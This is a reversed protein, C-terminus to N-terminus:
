NSVLPDTVKAARFGRARLRCSDCGGCPRSRGAYCSWTKEWPVGLREGRRVIEEKSASLLPAEIRIPPAGEVGTKTALRALRRFARLFEPRCDPYGSYDVANVGLAISGLHQSEAYGLAIALFITNRAPVYSGPIGRSPTSRLRRLSDTLTSRLLHGVPLRVVHHHRVRYHTALARAAHLERAHRQGYELSLADVRRYRRAAWALTVASDMGGSLLVVAGRRVKPTM